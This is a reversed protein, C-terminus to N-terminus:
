KAADGDPLAIVDTFLAYFRKGGVTLTRDEHLHGFLWATFSTEHMVWELYGTLEADKQLPNYGMLCLVTQPATHTLIYDVQFGCSELAASARNYDSNDPLEQPWWSYGEMRMYRDVSYAGGLTFFTKGEITYVQGRQLYFINPRIVRVTGGYKEAEPYGFLEDFNEHNGDIFLITYPKEALADLNQKDKESGRTNNSPYWIFGFDGTIILTDDKTMKDEPLYTQSFRYREGHTDGTVYIM